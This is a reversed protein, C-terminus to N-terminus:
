DLQYPLINSGFRSFLFSFLKSIQCFWTFSVNHCSSKIDRNKLDKETERELEQQEKGEDEGAWYMTRLVMM